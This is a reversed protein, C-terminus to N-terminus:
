NEYIFVLRTIVKELRGWGTYFCFIDTWKKAFCVSDGWLLVAEGVDKSSSAGTHTGLILQTIFCSNWWKEPCCYFSHDGKATSRRIHAAVTSWTTGLMSVIAGFPMVKLVPSSFLTFYLFRICGFKLPKFVKPVMFVLELCPYNSGTLTSYLALDSPM